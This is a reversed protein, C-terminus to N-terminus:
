EYLGPLVAITAMLSSIIAFLSFVILMEQLTFQSILRARQTHRHDRIYIATIGGHVAGLAIVILTILLYHPILNTRSKLGHLMRFYVIFAPLTFALVFLGAYAAGRAMARNVGPLMAARKGLVYGIAVLVVAPIWLPYAVILISDLLRDSDALYKAFLLIGLLVSIMVFAVAAGARGGYKPSDDEM